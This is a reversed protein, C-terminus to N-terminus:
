ARNKHVRSEVIRKLRKLIRLIDFIGDQTADYALTRGYEKGQLAAFFWNRETVYCGYVPLGDDNGVQAALLGILLQGLPDNASNREKKYEHLAFFPKRPVRGGEAVMLDVAGSIKVGNAVFALERELFTRYGEGELEALAIIFAIFKMKLEEENWDDVGDRLRERLVLLQRYEEDSLEVGEGTAYSSLEPLAKNPRIGFTLEVEDTTWQSFKKRQM